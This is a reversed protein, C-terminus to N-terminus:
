STAQRPRSCCPRVGTTPSIQTARSRRRHLRDVEDTLAAIEGATLVGRLLAYGDRELQVSAEPPEGTYVALNKGVRRIVDEDQGPLV